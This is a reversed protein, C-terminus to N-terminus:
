SENFLARCKNSIGQMSRETGFRERFAIAIDRYMMGRRARIFQVMEDDYYHMSMRKVGTKEPKMRKLEDPSYRDTIPNWGRPNLNKDYTM